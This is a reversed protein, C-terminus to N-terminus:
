QFFSRSIPLGNESLTFFSLHKFFFFDFFNMTIPSVRGRDGLELTPPSKRFVNPRKVLGLEVGRPNSYVVLKTAADTNWQKEILYKDFIKSTPFNVGKKRKEAVQVIPLHGPRCIQAKGRLQTTGFYLSSTPILLGELIEVLIHNELQTM